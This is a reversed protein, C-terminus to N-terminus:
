GPCNAEPTVQVQLKVQVQQKGKGVASNNIRVCKEQIEQFHHYEDVYTM